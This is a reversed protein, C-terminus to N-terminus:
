LFEGRCNIEQGVWLERRRFGSVYPPQFQRRGCCRSDFIHRVDDKSLRTPLRLQNGQRQWAEVIAEQVLDQADAESRAQQRAFLLLRPVHDEFWRQWDAQKPPQDMAGGHRLMGSEYAGGNVM